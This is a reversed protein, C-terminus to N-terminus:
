NMHHPEFYYKIFWTPFVLCGGWYTEESCSEKHPETHKTWAEFLSHPECCWVQNGIKTELKRVIPKWLIYKLFCHHLHEANLCIKYTCSEPHNCGPFSPCMCLAYMYRHINLFSETRCYYHGKLIYGGHLTDQMKRRGQISIRCSTETDIGAEKIIKPAFVSFLHTFPSCFIGPDTSHEQTWKLLYSIDERM